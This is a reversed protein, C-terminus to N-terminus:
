TACLLCDSQVCACVAFSAGPKLKLGDMVACAGSLYQDTLKGGAFELVCMGVMVVGEGARESADVDMASVVGGGARETGDVDMASAM